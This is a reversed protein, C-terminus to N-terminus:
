RMPLTKKLQPDYGRTENIVLNGKGLVRIQRSIEYDVARAVSRLSNLNKIETRTGLPEHPKRVSVNADIRM